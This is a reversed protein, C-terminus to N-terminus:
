KGRQPLRNLREMELQVSKKWYETDLTTQGYSLSLFRALIMFAHMNDVSINASRMQM